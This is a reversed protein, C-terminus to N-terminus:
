PRLICAGDRVMGGALKRVDTSIPGALRLREMYADMRPEEIMGSKRILKLLDDVTAPAPM